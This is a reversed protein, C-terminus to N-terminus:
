RDRVVIQMSREDQRAAATTIHNVLTYVQGVTGGSIWVTATTTTNSESVKTLDAPVTWTSTVITDGALWPAWLWGFDLTAAPDKTKREM